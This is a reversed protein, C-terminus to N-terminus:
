QEVRSERVPAFSRRHIVCPGFAKLADLHAPTPYGKNRDFGYVPFRRHWRRMVRDRCVKALISAASIAPVLRDGGIVPEAIFSSQQGTFAPIQRGDVRVLEPLIKLRLVAREMALLSAQLINVGDIEEPTALGLAFARAYRRIEHALEQRQRATLCKSDRLGEIPREPDLMVAAAVVPGALPGRGVEDVGAIAADASVFSFSETVQM